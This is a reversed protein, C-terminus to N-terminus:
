VATPTQIKKALNQVFGLFKTYVFTLTLLEPFVPIGHEKGFPAANAFLVPERSNGSDDTFCVYYDQAHGGDVEARKYREARKKNVYQVTEASVEKQMQTDTM